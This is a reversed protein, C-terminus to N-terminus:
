AVAKMNFKYDERLYKNFLCKAHKWNSPQIDMVWKEIYVRREAGPYGNEDNFRITWGVYKSNQCEKIDSINHDAWQYLGEIFGGCIETYSSDAIRSFRNYIALKFALNGDMELYDAMTNKSNKM